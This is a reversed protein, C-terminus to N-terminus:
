KKNSDKGSNDSFDEKSFDDFNDESSEKSDMEDADFDNEENDEDNVIEFDSTKIEDDNTKMLEQKSNDELKDFEDFDFLAEEEENGVVMPIYKDLGSVFNRIEDSIHDTTFESEDKYPYFIHIDPPIVMGLNNATNILESKVIQSSEEDGVLLCGFLKGYLHRENAKQLRGILTELLSSYKGNSVKTVFIVAKSGEFKPYLFEMGDLPETYSVPQINLQYLKVIENSVKISPMISEILDMCADSPSNIDNIGAYVFVVDSFEKNENNVTNDTAVMDDLEGDELEDFGEESTEDDVSVDDSKEDEKPENAFPDKLEDFDVDDLKIDDVINNSDDSKEDDNEEEEESFFEDSNKIQDQTLIPHYEKQKLFEDFNFAM